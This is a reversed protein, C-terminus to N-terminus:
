AWPVTDNRGRGDEVEVKIVTVVAESVEPLRVQPRPGYSMSVNVVLIERMRESNPSIVTAM